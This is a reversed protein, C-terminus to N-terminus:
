ASRQQDASTDPWDRALATMSLLVLVHQLDCDEEEHEM